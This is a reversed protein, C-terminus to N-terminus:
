KSFCRELLKTINNSKLKKSLELATVGSQYVSNKCSAGSDLLYEVMATDRNMVAMNLADIGSSSINMNIDAGLDLLQAVAEVRGCDAAMMLLTVQEKSRKNIDEPKLLILLENFLEMDSSLTVYMAEFLSDFSEQSKIYNIDGISAALVVKSPPEKREIKGALFEKVKVLESESFTFKFNPCSSGIEKAFVGSNVLMVVLLIVTSKM